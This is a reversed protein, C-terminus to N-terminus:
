FLQSIYWQRDFPKLDRYDQGVGVFIVPKGTEHVISLASGGRTDADMKTLISADVGVMENFARAQEVSDNGTLSDGVFVKLDPENVRVVKSLEDMLNKNTQMRGATDALVVDVGQHGAHEVADYIVAASDGGKQHAIVKVGLKEGHTKLQEIAGARFTDGAAFVVSLGDDMMLRALKAMTTTKGAGNVGLFVIVYPGESKRAAEFVDFGGADLMETIVGRFADRVAGGVRDKEIERDVLEDRLRDCLHQATEVAVDSQILDMHLDWLVDELDSSSLRIKGSAISKIKSSASVKVEHRSSEEVRGVFNNLRDKLGKFM